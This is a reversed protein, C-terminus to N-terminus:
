ITIEVLVEAEKVRIEGSLLKPLLADRIAALTSTQEINETIQQRLPLVARLFAATAYVPPIFTSAATIVKANMNAQVSGGMAGQAYELYRESRLFYFLFYSAALSHTKLRILYSAFVSPVDQEVIAAKGPDAMRSVVVDGIQLKYRDLLQADILCYPVNDWEIWPQKNMDTIRLFRPGVPDGLASATYGYQATCIDAVKGVRWEKPIMGLTSGEFSDPFLTATDADMGAPQRGEMKARVPDFDVFWSQFLARATEELTANMRRNLEIKDDLAGLIAAIARQEPLPPLVIPIGEIIGQNLSAMTTGTSHQLM